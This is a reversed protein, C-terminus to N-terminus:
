GETELLTALSMGDDPPLSPAIVVMALTPLVTLAPWHNGHKTDTTYNSPTKPLPNMVLTVVCEVNGCVCVCVTGVGSVCIM